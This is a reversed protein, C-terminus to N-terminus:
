NSDKAEKRKFDGLHQDRLRDTNAMYNLKTENPSNHNKTSNYRVWGTKTILVQFSFSKSSITGSATNTSVDVMYGEAIRGDYVVRMVMKNEACKTGALMKDYAMSFEQFYPYDVTDIFLGSFTFLKPKEGFLFAHWGSSFSQVVQIVQSSNEQVNQLSFNNFVGYYPVGDTLEINPVMGNPNNQVVGDGGGVVPSILSVKNTLHKIEEKDFGGADKNYEEKSYLIITSLDYEHETTGSNYPRLLSSASLQKDSDVM